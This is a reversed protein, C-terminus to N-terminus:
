HCVDRALELLARDTPSHAVSVAKWGTGAADAVRPGIVVLTVASRDIGLRTCEAAFHAAALASHLLVPVGERLSKLATGALPLYAVRYVIRTDIAVGPPPSLAVHDEGALRLLRALPPRDGMTDLVAQLGGEGVLAVEFGAARAAAATSDGVALVPAGRCADLMPGGLRVANASGLLLADYLARGPAQWAVAQVQSMPACIAEMGLQAALRATASAGPEARLVLVRSTM